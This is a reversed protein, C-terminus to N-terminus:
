KVGKMEIAKILRKLSIEANSTLQRTWVSKRPSWKFGNQKILARIEVDPIEEFELNLRNEQLDRIVIFGLHTPENTENEVNELLKLHAELDHLDKLIYANVACSYVQGIIFATDKMYSRKLADSMWVEASIRERMFALMENTPNDRYGSFNPLHINREKRFTRVAKNLRNNFDIIKKTTDILAITQEKNLNRTKM